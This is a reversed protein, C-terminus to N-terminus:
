FSVEDEFEEALYDVMRRNWDIGGLYVDGATARATYSTGDIHMLTVDFTGGGLDYVLITEPRQSEGKSSLFGKQFGFDIAAATPENIIDLVEIGALHGADQTAKRRPENFYAPVTIVAKQFTGIKSQADQKLKELVFSQVVEPPYHEGNIAKSYIPCGMDRKAYEAVGEPELCSAKVAEKGVVVSSADFFVVSPTLAEGEFNVITQPRGTSDLYAIVSFTTGLDIGIAPETSAQM